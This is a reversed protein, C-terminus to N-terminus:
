FLDLEFDKWGDDKPQETPQVVAAEKPKRGRKAAPKKDSDTTTHAVKVDSVDKVDVKIDDEHFYHKVMCYVDADSIGAVGGSQSKRAVGIIYNCCEKVSKNKKAYDVAFEKDKKVEETCYEQIADEFSYQAM